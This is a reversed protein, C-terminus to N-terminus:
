NEDMNGKNKRWMKGSKGLGLLGLLIGRKFKVVLGILHALVPDADAIGPRLPGVGRHERGASSVLPPRQLLAERFTLSTAPKLTSQQHM